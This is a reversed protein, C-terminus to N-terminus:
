GFLAYIPKAYPNQAKLTVTTLLYAMKLNQLMFIHKTYHHIPFITWILVQKILLNTLDKM